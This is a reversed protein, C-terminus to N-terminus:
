QLLGDELRGLIRVLGKKNHGSSPALNGPLSSLLGGVCWAEIKEQIWTSCHSETFLAQEAWSVSGDVPM